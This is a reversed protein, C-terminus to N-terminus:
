EAPNCYNIERETRRNEIYDRAEIPWGDIEASVDAYREVKSGGGLSSWCIQDGERYRSLLHEYDTWLVHLGNAEAVLWAGEPEGIVYKCDEPVLTVIFKQDNAKEIVGSSSENDAYCYSRYREFPSEPCTGEGLRCDRTATVSYEGSHTISAYLCVRQYETGVWTYEGCVGISYIPLNPEFKPEAFVGGGVLVLVLAPHFIKFRSKM